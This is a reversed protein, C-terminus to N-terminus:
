DCDPNGCKGDKNPEDCGCEIGITKGCFTTRDVNVDSSMCLDCLDDGEEERCDDCMDDEDCSERCKGCESCTMCGENVTHQCDETLPDGPNRDM